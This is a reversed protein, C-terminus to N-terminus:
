LNIITIIKENKKNVYLKQEDIKIELKDPIINWEKLKEIFFLENKKIYTKGFKRNGSNHNYYIHYIKAKPIILLDYGQKFISYTIITDERQGYPSLELPYNEVLKRNFFYNSYIHEVKKLEDSQDHIMQINFEFYINEIRNYFGDVEKPYRDPNNKIFGYSYDDVIIGSIAGISDSIYNSFLELVNYNLINDDDIKLVWGDDIHNLGIQLANTMGISNGHYYDFQINKLKFLSLINKLIQYNYFNKNKSDDVLVVRNPILSQNIISMLCLPLTTDYRDCTTLLITTKIKTTM